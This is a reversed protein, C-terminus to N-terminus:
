RRKIQAEVLEWDFGCNLIYDLVSLNQIFGVKNWQQNYEIPQYDTYTLKIGECVFHKEDQYKRAGKGSLYETDGGGIKKVIDIIRQEKNTSVNIEESNIIKTKFGFSKAIWTNIAINQEAINEYSQSLLEAFEPFVEDFFKAKKYNMAITKLHKEKWNLEDKTRVKNIEDGFHCDVPIKLRLEGQPTKIKNYNTLGDNIYQVDNLFVFFDSKSIKYFYGLFPIYNPQHISVVM